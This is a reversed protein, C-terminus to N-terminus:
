FSVTCNIQFWTAFEYIIIIIIIIISKKRHM